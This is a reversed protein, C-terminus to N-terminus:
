PERVVEVIVELILGGWHAYVRKFPPLHTPFSQVCKIPNGQILFWSSTELLRQYLYRLGNTSLDLRYHIYGCCHFRNKMLEPVTDLEFYFMSAVIADFVATVAKGDDQISQAVNAKLDPISSVDDLSPEPGNFQVNLRHHRHRSGAPLSNYFRKWADEGDLNRM